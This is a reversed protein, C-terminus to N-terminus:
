WISLAFYLPWIAVLVLAAEDTPSRVAITGLRDDRCTCDYLTGEEVPHGTALPVHRSLISVSLDLETILSFEQIIAGVALTELLPEVPPVVFAHENFTLLAQLTALRAWIACYILAFELVIDEVSVALEFM